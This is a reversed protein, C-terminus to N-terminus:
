KKSKIKDLESKSITCRFGLNSNFAIPNSKGRLACRLYYPSSDWSGGRIVKESGKMPGQPNPESTVWYYENLFYDNCWEWVNGAMDYVGYKNPPFIGVPSTHRWKDNDGIGDFNADNHTITDGCFYESTLGGRAAKEWEAETPLRKGIWKAYANADEWSVYIVPFKKKTRFYSTDWVPNQPYKRKTTDCFFKYESNTVEFKDIYFSDIWINRVPYESEFGKISGMKFFGAPILVMNDYQSYLKSESGSTVKKQSIIGTTSFIILFFIMIANKM